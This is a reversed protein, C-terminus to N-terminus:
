HIMTVQVWKLTSVTVSIEARVKLTMLVIKNYLYAWKILYFTGADLRFLVFARM